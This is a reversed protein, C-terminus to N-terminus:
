DVNDTEASAFFSFDNLYRCDIVLFIDEGLDKGVSPAVAPGGLEPTFWTAM